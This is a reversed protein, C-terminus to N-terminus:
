DDGSSHQAEGHRQGGLFFAPYPGIVQGGVRQFARHCFAGLRGRFSGFFSHHCFHGGVVAARRNIRRIQSALGDDHDIYGFQDADPVKIGGALANGVSGGFQAVDGHRRIAGGGAVHHLLYLENFVVQRLAHVADQEGGVVRHANRRHQAARKFAAHM